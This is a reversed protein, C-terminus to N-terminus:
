TPPRLRDDRVDIMKVDQIRYDWGLEELKELLEQIDVVFMGGSIVELTMSIAKTELPGCEQAKPKM